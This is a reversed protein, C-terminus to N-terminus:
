GSLGKSHNIVGKKLHRIYIQTDQRTAPTILQIGQSNILCGSTTFELEDLIALEVQKTLPILQYLRIKLTGNGTDVTKGYGWPINIYGEFRIYQNPKLTKM